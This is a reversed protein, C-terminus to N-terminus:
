VQNNDKNDDDTDTSFLFDITEDDFLEESIKNKKNKERKENPKSTNDANSDLDIIVNEFLDETKSSTNDEESEFIINRMSDIESRDISDNEEDRSKFGNNDFTKSDRNINKNEGLELDRKERRRMAARKKAALLKKYSKLTKYYLIVFIIFGAIFIILLGVVGFAIWKFYQPYENTDTEIPMEETVSSIIGYKQFTQEEPDYVYLEAQGEPSVAYVIYSDSTGDSSVFGYFTNEGITVPAKEYGEPAEFDDPINLITLSISQSTVTYVPSAINLDFDYYYFRGTNVEGNEESLSTLYVAVSGGDPFSIASVTQGNIEVETRQFGIPILSDDFESVIMETNDALKVIVNESEPEETIEPTEPIESEGPSEPETNGNESSEAAARTVRITYNRVAGNEATVRVTVTNTGVSLRTNGSVSYRAASDNVTASVAISTVSNAVSVSYETRSSSFSPSLRGPSVSLASLSADSSATPRANITVSASCTSADMLDGNGSSVSTFSATLSSTGTRLTRFTFTLSYRAEGSSHYDVINLVGNSANIAPAFGGSCSVYQLYSSDFQLIANLGAISTQTSLTVSVNEGETVTAGSLSFSASAATTPLSFLSFILSVVLFPLLLIKKLNVFKNKM